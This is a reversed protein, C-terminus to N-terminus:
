DVGYLSKVREDIEKEVKGIDETVSLTEEHASKYAKLSDQGVRRTFEEAALSWPKELPNRSTSEAPEIGIDRLFKEVRDRRETHLKQAQEALKAVVKRESQSADPIPLAELYITHLTLRGGKDEDGLVSCVIKLYEWVLKSNLIGLLYFDNSPISFGNNLPFYKQNDMTWRPERAFKPYIIKPKEFVDYYSCSRLEWWNNGKDWRAEAKKQFKKM